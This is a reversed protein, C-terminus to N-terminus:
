RLVEAAMAEHAETPERGHWEAGDRAARDLAECEDPADALLERVVAVVVQVRDAEPLATVRDWLVEARARVAALDLACRRGIALAADHAERALRRVARAGRRSDLSACLFAAVAARQAEPTPPPLARLRLPVPRPPPTLLAASLFRTM